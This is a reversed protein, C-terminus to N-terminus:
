NDIAELKRAVELATGYAAHFYAAAEISGNTAYWNLSTDAGNFIHRHYVTISSWSQPDPYLEVMIDPQNRYDMRLRYEVRLPPYDTEPVAAVVIGHMAEIVSFVGDEEVLMWELDDSIALIQAGEITLRITGTGNDAALLRAADEVSVLPSASPGIPQIYQVNPKDPLFYFRGDPFQYICDGRVGNVNWKGDPLELRSTGSGVLISRNILEEESFSALCAAIGAIGNWLDAAVEEAFRLGFGIGYRHSHSKYAVMNWHSIARQVDDLEIMRYGYAFEEGEIRGELTWTEDHHRKLAYLKIGARVLAEILAKRKVKKYNM